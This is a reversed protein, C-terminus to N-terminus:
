DAFNSLATLLRAIAEPTHSLNLAIRLRSHQVPVTPPRIASVQIGQTALYRQAALTREPTKLIIPIIPTHSAGTNMGWAQLQACVRAAETFLTQVAPQLSPILNWAAHMVAVQMPSPATSYIFGSCRNMFYRQLARSCAIYAGSGGLGKSFTGMSIVNPHEFDSTLGYGKEGQWGTAHAEDVYLLANYQTALDILAAMDVSDGDMGFISETLIFRPQQLNKTKELLSQLHNLDGHRYRQQRVNALQCGRHMSAHNLRDSFVLPTANLIRTDLLAAIASVNAQFGTAFILANQTKKLTPSIRNM